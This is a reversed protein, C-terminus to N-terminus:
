HSIRCLRQFRSLLQIVTLQQLLCRSNLLLGAAQQQHDMLGVALQRQWRRQQQQISQCSIGRAQRVVPSLSRTMSPQLCQASRCSHSQRQCLRGRQVAQVWHAIQDRCISRTMTCSAAAVPLAAGSPLVLGGDAAEDDLGMSSLADLSSLESAVDAAPVATEALVADVEAASAAQVAETGAPALDPAAQAEALLSPRSIALQLLEQSGHVYVPDKM